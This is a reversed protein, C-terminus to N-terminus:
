SAKSSVNIINLLCKTSEEWTIWPMSDSVPAQGRKNMQLWSEISGALDKGAIGSFYYAHEGAVERFVPIDRAIIPLKEQAAEILPLGFGESESAAILCTSAKYIKELYEDSIGELWFLRNNLEPHQSLKEILEETNWGAKGVIILNLNHGEQWLLEFAALLQIYGKRPEITAVSLFSPNHNIINLVDVADDPLGITPVSNHIDAGLHFFEVELKDKQEPFYKVLWEKVDVAVAESICILGDAYHALSDIWDKFVIATGEHHWEPNVLPTLDYVVYNIKVGKQRMDRLVQNLAPFLHATLDLGLFVDGSSFNITQDEKNTVEDGLFKATFNTAQKFMEGAESYVPIVVYGKPQHKLLQLLISRVVRQIGSKADVTVLQSIDIFLQHVKSNKMNERVATRLMLLDEETPESVGVEVKINELINQVIENVDLSTSQYSITQKKYSAEIADVAISASRKWSFKHAQLLSHEKLSELFTKDSLVEIIKNKISEVSYPDFLADERGIVEPVSTTNSGIVAAGCAMAELAPLGFGEHISPYVYLTCLSYLAILEDDPVYDTLIFQNSLLGHTEAIEKLVERNGPYLKSSVVLQHQGRINKPLTAFAEILREFNKRPDFGGPVYLVFPKTIRYKSLLRSHKEEDLLEPKFKSDIAASINVVQEPKFDLLDIAEKRSHESIAFLLNTKKLQEIKRLYFEKYNKDQLYIDDLIYPILDYLTIATNIEYDSVGVSIVSDDGWGEFLSAIHLFDPQLQAILQERIQEAVRIHWLNDPEISAVAGPATFIVIQKEPVWKKFIPIIPEITEPFKDSLVLWVDHGREILLKVMNKSLSMSYRGIGRTRSDSQCAQLDIIIRM